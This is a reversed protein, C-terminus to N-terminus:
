NWAYINWNSYTFLYNYITMGFNQNGWSATPYYEGDTYTNNFKNGSETVVWKTGWFSNKHSSYAIDTLTYEIQEYNSDLNCQPIAFQVATLAIGFYTLVTKSVALAPAAPLALVGAVFSALGALDRYTGNIDYKKNGTEKVYDVYAGCIGTGTGDTYQFRIRGLRRSMSSQPLIIGENKEVPISRQLQKSSGDSSYILENIVNKSRSVTYHSVMKGDNYQEFVSDGNDLDYARVLLEGSTSQVTTVNSNTNNKIGAAFSTLPVTLLLVSAIVLSILKSWIKM